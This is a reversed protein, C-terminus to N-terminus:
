LESTRIDRFAPGPVWLVVDIAAFVVFRMRQVTNFWSTKTLESGDTGCLAM